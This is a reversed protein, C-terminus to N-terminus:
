GGIKAKPGDPPHHFYFGGPQKKNKNERVHCASFSPSLSFFSSRSPIPPKPQSPQSVYTPRKWIRVIMTSTVSVRPSKTEGGVGFWRFALRIWDEVVVVVVMVVVVVDLFDGM